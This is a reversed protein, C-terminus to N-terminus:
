KTFFTKAMEQALALEEPTNIELTSHETKCVRIKYGNELARLQELSEAIELKTKPLKTYQLLFERKFAYLGMHHMVPCDQIQTRFFPIPARSFYLADDHCDLLVKVIHPSAYDKQFDLPYALTSMSINEGRAFPEVLQELMHAQIFPEDGQLNVIVDMNPYRAAVEAVRDSGTEHHPSTFEVHGNINQIVQAIEQSDTAVVVKSVSRCGIATEYVRQIMPKGALDVLPKRPLRTSGIRSPIVVLTQM